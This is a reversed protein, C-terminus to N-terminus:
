HQKIIKQIVRLWYQKTSSIKNGDTKGEFVQHEMYVPFGLVDVGIQYTVVKLYKSNYITVQYHSQKTERLSQFSFVSFQVSISETTLQEM